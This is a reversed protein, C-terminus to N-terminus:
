RTAASVAASPNDQTGARRSRGGRPTLTKEFWHQAYPNDNFRAIDRYGASRYLHLAETLSAHTDLRIVRLRRKRAAKELGDLMRRGLGLGRASPAIWMRKIEGLAPGITRLAGCGVAEGHLRAILLLGRPPVLESADVASQRHNFGSRFRARLEAFYRDFCHQADASRPDDPVIEVSSARLLREVQTMAAVLRQTQSSALPALLSQALRNSLVDIRRLEALGAKSLQVRRVRADDASARTTVLRKRELARLLRSVYGSDLGLRARLDRVTAGRAGIEFMLRTEVYPRDRGLYRENLIGLRQAVTRNFARVQQIENM